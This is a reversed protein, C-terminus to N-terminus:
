YSNLLRGNKLDPMADSTVCSSVLPTGDIRSGRWGLGGGQETMEVRRVCAHRYRCYVM